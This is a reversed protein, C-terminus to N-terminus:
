WNPVKKARKSINRTKIAPKKRVPLEKNVPGAFENVQGPTMSEAMQASPSGPKATAKGEMVAKAINATVAQKQSVAPSM